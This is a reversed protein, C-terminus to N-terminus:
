RGRTGGGDDGGGRRGGFGGFSGFGTDQEVYQEYQGASLVTQLETRTTTRIEEMGDRMAERDWTGTERMEAFFTDRAEQESTLVRKLEGAQYTNLGLKETLDALREDLRAELAERRREDREARERDEKAELVNLVLSELQESGTEPDRVAALLDRLEDLEGQRVADAAVRTGGGDGLEALRTHLTDLTMAMSDM